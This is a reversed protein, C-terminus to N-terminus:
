NDERQKDENILAHIKDILRYHADSEFDRTMMIWTRRATGEHYRMHTFVRGTFQGDILCEHEGNPLHEPLEDMFAPYTATPGTINICYKRTHGGAFFVHGSYPTENTQKTSVNIM